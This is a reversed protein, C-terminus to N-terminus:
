AALAVERPEDIAGCVAITPEDAFAPVMDDLVQQIIKGTITDAQRVYGVLLANDAVVNILRPIGQSCRHIAQVAEQDFVVAPDDADKSAARLRHIIYAETDERDLPRLHKAMVIRQRLAAMHPRGIRQRLEPQGVLAVQVPKRTCTDFNSLLRLEELAEDSLTQAEDVFFVVPHNDQLRAMLYERLRDLLIARDEDAPAPLDMARLIQRIVGEGTRHGHQVHVIQASDGCRQCM